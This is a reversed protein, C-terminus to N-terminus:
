ESLSDMTHIIPIFVFKEKSPLYMLKSAISNIGYTKLTDHTKGDSAFIKLLTSNMPSTFFANKEKLFNGVIKYENNELIVYKMKVIEDTKTLFWSDSAKKSSLMIENTIQIKKYTTGNQNPYFAQPTFKKPNCLNHSEIKIHLQAMEIIRRSIQELPKNGQKLNLGLLRLCNEYKYASLHMLNDINNMRLDDVIHTLLHVNSGITYTGYLVGYQEAYLKFMKEAIPVFKKYTSSSCIRTACCLILFHNYEETSLIQDFIVMGVYLLITRFELAKWKRLLDLNRIDRHIDNPMCKGCKALLQNALAIQQKNWKRPYKGGKEGFVWRIFTRRMVGSDIM